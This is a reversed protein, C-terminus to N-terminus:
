QVGIFYKILNFFRVIRLTRLVKLVKLTWHNSVYFHNIYIPFFTLLDVLTKQSFIKSINTRNQICYIFSITIVRNLDDIFELTFLIAIAFELQDIIQNSDSIEQREIYTGVVYVILGFFNAVFRLINYILNIIKRQM